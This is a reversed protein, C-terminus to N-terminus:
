PWTRKGAWEANGCSDGENWEGDCFSYDANDQWCHAGRFYFDKRSYLFDCKRDQNENVLALFEKITWQREYQDYIKGGSELLTVWDEFSVVKKLLLGKPGRRYGQFLFKFMGDFAAGIYMEDYRGCHACANHRWFFRTM